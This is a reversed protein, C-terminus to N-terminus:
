KTISLRRYSATTVMESGAYTNWKIGISNMCRIKWVKRRTTERELDQILKWWDLQNRIGIGKKNLKEYKNNLYLRRITDSHEPELPWYRLPFKRRMELYHHCLPYIIILKKNDFHKIDRLCNSFVNKYIIEYVEYPLEKLYTTRRRM